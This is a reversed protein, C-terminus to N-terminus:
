PSQKRHCWVMRDIDLFNYVSQDIGEAEVAAAAIGQLSQQYVTTQMAYLAKVAEIARRSREDVPIEPPTPQDGNGPLGLRDQLRSLAARNAKRDPRSM